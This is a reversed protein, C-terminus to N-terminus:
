GRILLGAKGAAAAKDLAAKAEQRDAYPGLLVRFVSKGLVEARRIELKGLAPELQGRVRVAGEEDPLSSFQVWFTRRGPAAKRPPEPKAAAM